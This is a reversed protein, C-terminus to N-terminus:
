KLDQDTLVMVEGNEIEDELCMLRYGKWGTREPEGWKKTFYEKLEGKVPIKEGPFSDRYWEKFSNYMDSLPLRQTDDRTVNEEMFQNYCDNKKKYIETAWKVKDPEVFTPNKKRHNLLVWAFAQVMKPIKKDFHPDKPFRKEKLQQEWTDPPNDTFTSEFPIVRIRNWTAKDSYPISPPDNCIVTLKFMPDIERGAEFLSRAFFSDNGSLEKLIGINLVDKKDPEQLIAWRVGNGARALEPSAQSSATRKGVVLSTPLKIAYAGFMKEFFLQTVSKGNDGEGSWFYVHKRKNGGVFVESSIDLFYNRIQTDPFIKIFFDYVDLIIQDDEKYEVYDIPMQLSVYDEPIGPRFKNEQLDYVGNRFCIIWPNKDLNNLFNKDYFEYNCEKMVASKFTHNGLNQIMKKIRKLHEAFMGESQESVGKMKDFIENKKENYIEVLDDSIKKRLYIGDDMKEWRHNHYCYLMEPKISACVFECGYMEKMAKAIDTHSGELSQRIHPESYSAIIKKYEVPNDLKAYHALTGLTVGKQHPKMQTTWIHICEDPSSYKEWKQSFHIWLALGDDSQDSINCLAWGVQIWDLYNSSREPSLIDIFKKARELLQSMNKIILEKNKQEPKTLVSAKIPLNTRIECIERHMPNVSLIRPLYFLHRNALDIENEDIDYLKYEELAQELSILEMDENYIRTLEYAKMNPGDKHSGYLLWPAKLYGPDIIKNIDLGLNQFINRTKVEQIIRPLLHMEHDQKQLFVYPFHLHFGSKIIDVNENVIRYAPKELVFCIFHRPQPDKLIKRLVSQYISIVNQLQDLSYLHKINDRDESFSVKIDVDVLIPVCTFVKEAIGYENHNEDENIDNKISEIETCYAEWFEELIDRHIYFKGNPYVMSVHTHHGESRSNELIQHVSEM